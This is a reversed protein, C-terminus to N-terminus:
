QKFIKDIKEDFATQDDNVLFALLGKKYSYSGNIGVDNFETTNSFGKFKNEEIGLNKMSLIAENYVPVYEVWPVPVTHMRGDRGLRQIYDVRNLTTYSYNHLRIKDSKNDKNILSAKIITRTDPATPAFSGVDLSNAMCEAEFCTFNSAYDKKYIYEVTKTQQYIPVCLLPAFQFYFNKFYEEHFTLFRQKIVEYDHHLFRSFDTNLDWNVSHETTIVNLKGDKFFNFDDGYPDPVKILDIMNQQALPTFMLRFQVENDRNKAGFLVEFESNAMETFNGGAASSKKAVKSLAKKGKKVTREVQKENMKEVDTATRSFHLDPAAESCFTLRTHYHYYPKPKDVSATLIQTHHVTRYGGNSSRERTTWHITISGTYTYVGMKHVLDREILFPNGKISGSVAEVTSSNIDWNENFGFREHMYDFSKSDLCDNMEFLPLTKQILRNTSKYTFQDVLPRMKSVCELRIDEAKKFEIDRENKLHNIEKNLKKVILVILGAGGAAGVLFCPICIEFRKSIFAFVLATLSGAFLLITFFISFGKLARKSRLRQKIKEVKHVQKDYQKVRHSNEEININSQKVVEDFYKEANEKFLGKYKNVYDKRPNAIFDDM